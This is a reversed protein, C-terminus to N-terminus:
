QSDAMVGDVFAALREVAAQTDESSYLYATAEIYTDGSHRIIRATADGDSDIGSFTAEGSDKSGAVLSLKEYEEIFGYEDEFADRPTVWTTEDTVRAITMRGSGDEDYYSVDLEAYGDYHYMCVDAGDYGKAVLSAAMADLVEDFGASDTYYGADGMVFEDMGATDDDPPNSADPIDFSDSLAGDAVASAVVDEPVSLAKDGNIAEIRVTIDASTGDGMEMMMNLSKLVEDERGFQGAVSMSQVEADPVPNYPVDDLGDLLGSLESSDMTWTVVYDGEGDDSLEADKAGTFDMMGSVDFDQDETTSKTWGSSQGMATVNMYTANGNRDAWADIGMEISMGEVRVSAKFGDLHVINNGMEIRGSASVTTDMDESKGTIDAEVSMAQYKGPDLQPVGALLSEATVSDKKKCGCLSVAMVAALLLAFIRTKSKM